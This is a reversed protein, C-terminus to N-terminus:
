PTRDQPQAAHPPRGAVRRIIPRHRPSSTRSDRHLTCGLWYAVAVFAVATLIAGTM